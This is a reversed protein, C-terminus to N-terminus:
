FLFFTALAGLLMVKFGQVVIEASDTPTYEETRTPSPTPPCTPQAAPPLTQSNLENLVDFQDISNCEQLVSASESEHILCAGTAEIDEDACSGCKPFWACNNDGGVVVLCGNTAIVSRLSCCSGEFNYDRVLDLCPLLTPIRCEQQGCYDLQGFTAELLAFAVSLRLIYM